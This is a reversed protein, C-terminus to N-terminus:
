ITNANFTTYSIFARLSILIHIFNPIFTQECTMYNNCRVESSEDNSVDSEDAKSEEVIGGAAPATNINIPICFFILFISNLFSIIFKLSLNLKICIIIFSIVTDNMKLLYLDASLLGEIYLCSSANLVM